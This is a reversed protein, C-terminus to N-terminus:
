HTQMDSVGIVKDCLQRAANREEIYRLTRNSIWPKHANLSMSPLVEVASTQMIQAFIEMQKTLTVSFIMEKSCLYKNEVEKIFAAKTSTCSLSGLDPHTQLKKRQNSLSDIM